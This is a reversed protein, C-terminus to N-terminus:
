LVQEEKLREIDEISMGLLRGLIEENHEGILPARTRVTGPSESMKLPFNPMKTPGTQPHDLEVIMSRANVHPDRMMQEINLVKAVPVRIEVLRSVIEETSRHRAWKEVVEQDLTEVGLMKAFRDFIDGQPATIMVYGDKARCLGPFGVRYKEMAEHFTLGALQFFSVSPLISIMSDVQAVDIRQGVGTLQRYYLATLIGIVAFLAPVSDAIAEPAQVPPGQPDAMQQNLFMYGSVAQAIPDFSLRNSYPGYQGFGTISTFIIKPNIQRLVEYGIGLRDMVGVSFNEMVVDSIKTLAKFIEVAKPNKLNLSLAKKNRNLFVFYPSGGNILPPFVRTMEGWPPEIKIVEAGLDALFMTCMPGAMAHTLDLVRVGALPLAM